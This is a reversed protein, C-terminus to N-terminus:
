EGNDDGKRQSMMLEADDSWEAFGGLLHAPSPQRLVRAIDEARRKLMVLADDQTVLQFGVTDGPRLQGIQWLDASLVVAPVPYGGTAQADALLLVPEGDPPLQIAGRSMGESLVQGGDLHPGGLRRLRVGVRDSRADVAFISRLLAELMQPAQVAHPGSVIRLRWAGTTPVRRLLENPLTRGAVDASATGRNLIDGPRLSRGGLGGLHARTDTSRSGMVRPVAVGGTVCLYVRVGATIAGMELTDGAALAFTVGGPVRRGSVRIVCRAGTIAVVCPALAEFCAHGGLIELAAMELENALLANGFALADPDAAGSTSVGYRAYGPRGGDQVTTQLGAQLVRLWPVGTADREVGESLPPAIELPEDPVAPFFRVRDGPRLLAPPEREPDFLPLPTRGLIRWGGPSDVSYVGAQREAIAVSGASVRTRPTALRPVDLARPLGSLYPFGALFGLFAVRYTASTHKRILESATLGLMNAVDDLDPGDAGGYRVPIRIIRGRPLPCISARALTDCLYTAMAAPEIQLADFRVLVSAYAPIVDVLGPPAAADLAAVLALGRRSAMPGPRRGLRVLLASDGAALIQAANRRQARTM